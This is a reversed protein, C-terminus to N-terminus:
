SRDRKSQKGADNSGTMTLVYFVAFDGTTMGFRPLFYNHDSTNGLLAFIDRKTKISMDSVIKSMAINKEFVGLNSQQNM